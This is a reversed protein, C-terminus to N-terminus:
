EFFVLLQDWSQWRYFLFHFGPVHVIQQNQWFRNQNVTPIIWDNEAVIIEDYISEQSSLCDTDVRLAALELRQSDLTRGPQSALFLDFNSKERCMRRYFKLRAAEGFNVLTDDYITVPIGFIDNVPCLTGNIAIKRSFKGSISAFLKQGAWVGMSWGILILHGYNEFNLERYLDFEGDLDSYDYLMCVDYKKASLPLFPKEDMGWGNCFVILDRNNKKHLWFRKM